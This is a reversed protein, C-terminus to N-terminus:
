WLCPKLRASDAPPYVNRAGAAFQHWATPHLPPGPGNPGQHRPGHHRYTICRCCIRLAKGSIEPVVASQRRAGRGPPLRQRFIQQRHEYRSGVRVLTTKGSGNPGILGVVEGAEVRVSVDRLVVREGYGVTVSSLSLAAGAEAM